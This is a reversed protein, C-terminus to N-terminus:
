SAKLVALDLEFREGEHNMQRMLEATDLLTSLSQVQGKKVKWFSIAAFNIVNSSPQFGFMPKVLTGCFSSQTVVQDGEAIVEEIIVEFDEMSHRVQQMVQAAMDYELTQNLLSAHYKFDRRALNRALNFRGQNWTLQIFTEVLKKNEELCTNKDTDSPM